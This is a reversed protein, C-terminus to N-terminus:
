PQTAAVKPTLLLELRVSSGRSGALRPHPFTIRYDPENKVVKLLLGHGVATYDTGALSDFYPTIDFVVEDSEVPPDTAARMPATSGEADAGPRPWRTGRLTDCFEWTFHQWDVPRPLLTLGLLESAAPPKNASGAQQVELDRIRLFARTVKQGAPVQIDELRVLVRQAGGDAGLVLLSTAPNSAVREALQVMRIGTFTAAPQRFNEYIRLSGGNHTQVLRRADGQLARGDPSLFALPIPHTQALEEAALLGYLSELVSENQAATQLQRSIAAGREEAELVLRLQALRQWALGGIYNQAASAASLEGRATALAGIAGILDAEAAREAEAAPGDTPADAPQFRTIDFLTGAAVQRWFVRRDRGNVSQTFSELSVWALLPGSQTVGRRSGSRLGGQPESELGPGGVQVSIAEKSQALLKAKRALEDRFPGNLYSGVVLISERTGPALEHWVGAKDAAELERLAGPFDWASLRQDFNRLYPAAKLAAHIAPARRQYDAEVQALDLQRHLASATAITAPDTFRDMAKLLAAARALEGTQICGSVLLPGQATLARKLEELKDQIKQVLQEKLATSQPGAPQVANIAEASRLTEWYNEPQATKIAADFLSQLQSVATRDRVAQLDNLRLRALTAAATQPYFDLINRYLKEAAEPAKDFVEDASNLLGTARTEDEGSVATPAPATPAPVAPPAPPPLVAEPLNGTGPQRTGRNGGSDAPAPETTPILGVPDPPPQTTPPLPPGHNAPAPSSGMLLRETMAGLMAMCLAGLGVAWWPMHKQPRFDPPAVPPGAYPSLAPGLNERGIQGSIPDVAGPAPSTEGALRAARSPIVGPPAWMLQVSVKSREAERFSMERIAAARRPDSKEVCAICVVGAERAESLGAQLESGPILRGCETCYTLTNPSITM